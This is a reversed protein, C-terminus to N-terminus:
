LPLKRPTGRVVVAAYKGGTTAGAVTVVVRIYRKKGRYGVRQVSAATIAVLSGIMDAAAVTTYGSGSSDSEELTPTHTGDTITDATIVATASDYNALDVGTGNVTANRNGTPVVSQVVDFETKMDRM